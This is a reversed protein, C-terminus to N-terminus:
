KEEDPEVTFRWACHCHPDNIEPYCSLLECRIRPDITRAFGSYEIIGVNRCPHFLMGKRERAHQVRCSLTRYILADQTRVIQDDNIHAYLRLRLAKELGDLGCRDPLDLFKRIKEAEIVTFKKWIELDHKMATDMGYAKEISQFWVGDMALWNKAYIELLDILKEKPLAELRKRRDMPAEKEKEPHREKM